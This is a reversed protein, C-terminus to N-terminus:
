EVNLAPVATGSQAPVDAANVKADDRAPEASEWIWKASLTTSKVLAPNPRSRLVPADTAAPYSGTLQWM